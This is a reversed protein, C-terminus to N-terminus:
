KHARPPAIKRFTWIAVRRPMDITLCAVFVIVASSVLVVPAEMSGMGCSIAVRSLANELSRLLPFGVASHAHLLYMSSISFAEGKISKKLLLVNLM